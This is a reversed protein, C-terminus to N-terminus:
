HFAAAVIWGLALMVAGLLIAAGLNDEEIARQWLNGPLARAMFAVALAFVAIAVLAFVIANGLSSLGM